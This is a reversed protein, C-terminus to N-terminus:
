ITYTNNTEGTHDGHGDWPIRRSHLLITNLKENESIRHTIVPTCLNHSYWPLKM